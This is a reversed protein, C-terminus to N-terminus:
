TDIEKKLADVKEVLDNRLAESGFKLLYQVPTGDARVSNLRVFKGPTLSAELGKLLETKSNVKYNLVVKLLGQSRMLLRVSKDAKSQNLHLPGTGREKWGDSINTLDLEFLKATASFHSIENEEGTQIKTIQELEVQKYQQVAPTKKEETHESDKKNERANSNGSDDDLFSKKHLLEKFANGFKSNAGFTSTVLPKTTSTISIQPSSTEAAAAVPESDFISPRNKIATAAKGFSSTAGFTAKPTNPATPTEEKPVVTTFSNMPTAIEPKLSFLSTGFTAKSVIPKSQPENPHNPLHEPKEPQPEQDAASVTDKLKPEDHATISVTSSLSTTGNFQHKLEKVESELHSIRAEFLAKVEKTISSKLYNLDDLIGNSESDSDQKAKKASSTDDSSLELSRKNTSGDLM